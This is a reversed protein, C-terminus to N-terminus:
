GQSTGLAPMVHLLPNPSVALEGTFPRDHALILLLSAAVGIGFLSTTIGSALRNDSHVMAIAVLACVGQLSLCLWKIWNVESQSIIIRQRRADLANELATAIERQAIQQGQGSPTLTLTFQLAEALSYPIVQLTATGRAMMPWEQAVADAVYSRILNRLRTDPEGPFAAALIVVTRLASAERDVVSSAKDNDSWVQTATFAVFLAFLIGLPPLLGPSVAKFSRAREGVSLMTVVGYIAATVLATLGFTLLAMWVIPLNHLWDNM